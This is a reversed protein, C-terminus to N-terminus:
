SFAVVKKIIKEDYVEGHCESCNPDPPGIYEWGAIRDWNGEGRCNCIDNIKRWSGWAEEDLTIYDVTVTPDIYAGFEHNFGMVELDDPLRRLIGLLEIVTM